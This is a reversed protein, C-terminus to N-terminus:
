AASFVDSPQPMGKYDRVWGIVQEAPMAAAIGNGQGTDCGIEILRQAQARTEVGEAVVSCGFTQSLGIVGEVIALDQRDGLMNTVFSRDIKLMDIPLRKLYTFTSYGTGFDDLAFRVGLARCEEMLECTHDIDALAATELVEIILRHAVPAQHRSLLGALHQAFLPEQLHRASVNISVTVDLGMRLWRALQGIGQQLVWNGVSIALGTNEILPLFQAPSIVGQEPHKWRLLAEVGLVRASRMDVKPQYYLLFENADLAGQVRGLAVFRAEARRDHEADFFLYGNRGSQKAGYMAHDAHRLLTEADAGDLPFVTAGISATVMVPGAGVGLAYPQCVQSLVREVAHRSEDLTATKLLLVFEDGGIRAVVDNGGAWSRLSRRMRAALEVLLRDGAEHGFRDNVPKFHDLDLYCVTLLSGERRSTQMATQLMQALRVRNPLRTLEDFHAQRQLQELQHRTHTVDVIAVVHNRVEGAPSRVVSASLELVCPEGDRRHARLEGHWSGDRALGDRMAALDPAPQGDPGEGHLLAPVRGLLEDRTYGTIATFNPNAELVRYQADTILLGEHLHQFVNRALAQGDRAAQLDDIDRATILVRRPTGHSDREAVLARLEFVKWSGDRCQMRAEHRAGASAGALMAEFGQRVEAADDTHLLEWFAEIRRWPTQAPHGLLALWRKSLDLHGSAPSWEGTGIQAADLALQWRKDTAARESTLALTLLPVVALSCAYGALMSLPPSADVGHFSGLSQSMAALLAAVLLLAGSAAAFLGSRLALVCLLLHPVFFLPSTLAAGHGGLAAWTGSAIIAALLLATMAWRWEGTARRWSDASLTLLPVAVVLAAVADGLWWRGWRAFADPAALAGTAVLAATGIGAAVLTSLGVGLAAFSLLDRRRDLAAHLRDRRLLWAALMPGLTAGAAITVAQAAPAITPLAVALAAIAAAPWLSPGFRVLAALAIGVPVGLLPVGADALASSALAVGGLYCAALVLVARLWWGGSGVSPLLAPASRTLRADPM